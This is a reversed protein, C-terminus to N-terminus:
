KRDVVVWNGDQCLVQFAGLDVDLGSVPEMDEAIFSTAVRTTVADGNPRDVPDMEPPLGLNIIVVDDVEMPTAAHKGSFGHYSVKLLWPGSGSTHAM